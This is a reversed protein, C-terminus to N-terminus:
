RIKNLAIMIPNQWEELARKRNFCWGTSIQCKPCIIRKEVYWHAKEAPRREEWIPKEGCNCTSLEENM